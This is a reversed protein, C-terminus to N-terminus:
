HAKEAKNEPIGLGSCVRGQWGWQRRFEVVGAAQIWM